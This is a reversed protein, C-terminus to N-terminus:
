KGEEEEEEKVKVTDIQEEEEKEAVAKIKEQQEHCLKIFSMRDQPRIPLMAFHEFQKKDTFFKGYTARILDMEETSEIEDTPNPNVEYIRSTSIEAKKDIPDLAEAAQRELPVIDMGPAGEEITQLM